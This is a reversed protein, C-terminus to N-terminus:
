KIVGGILTLVIFGASIYMMLNINKESLKYYYSSVEFEDKEGCNYEKARPADKFKVFWLLMPTVFILLAPIVVEYAKLNESTFM